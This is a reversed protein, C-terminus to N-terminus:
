IQLPSMRAALKMITSAPVAMGYLVVEDILGHFPQSDNLNKNTGIYIPKGPSSVLRNPFDSVAVETGNLYLRLWRGDYTAAAHMWIGARAAGKARAEFTTQSTGTGPAIFVVIDNFNCSLNFIERNTDGHQRSIVSLHGGAPPLTTVKIFAAITFARLDDIETSYPLQVGVEQSTGGPFSLAGGVQGDATFAVGVAAGGVTGHRGRGSADRALTSGPQDDLPWYGLLGPVLPPDTDLTAATDRPVPADVIPPGDLPNSRDQNAPPGDQIAPGDQSRPGDQAVLGDPGVRADSGGSADGRGTAGDGTAVEFEPNREACSLVLAVGALTAVLAGPRV